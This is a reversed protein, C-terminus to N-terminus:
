LSLSSIRRSNVAAGGAVLLGNALEDRLDLIRDLKGLTYETVMHPALLSFDESGDSLMRADGDLRTMARAFGEGGGLRRERPGSDVLLVADHYRRRRGKLLGFIYQPPFNV